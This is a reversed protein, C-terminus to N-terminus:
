GHLVAGTDLDIVGGDDPGLTDLGNRGAHWADTLPHLWHWTRGIDDLWGGLRRIIQAFVYTDSAAIGPAVDRMQLYIAAPNPCTCGSCGAICQDIPGDPGYYLTLDVLPTTHDVRDPPCMAYAALGPLHRAPGHTYPHDDAATIHLVHDWVQWAPTPQVIAIYSTANM